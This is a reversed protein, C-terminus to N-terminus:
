IQKNSSYASALPTTNVKPAQHQRNDSNIRTSSNQFQGVIVASLTRKTNDSIHKDNDNTHSSTQVSSSSGAPVSHINGASVSSKLANRNNITSSNGFQFYKPDIREHEKDKIRPEITMPDDGDNNVLSKYGNQSTSMTSHRYITSNTANNNNNNNCVNSSVPIQAANMQIYGNGNSSITGYPTTHRIHSQGGGNNTNTLFTTPRFHNTTTAVSSDLTSSTNIRSPQINQETIQKNLYTLLLENKKLLDKAETLQENLKLNTESGKTVKSNSENLEKQLNAIEREKEQLLREQKTAIQDKTKMKDKCKILETQCTQLDNKCKELENRYKVIIENGKLLDQKLEKIKELKSQATEEHKKKSEQEVSIRDQTQQLLDQKNKLDQEVLAIKTRLHNVTKEYQHVENDLTTNTKRYRALEDKTNQYEENTTKLKSSLENITIENRYKLSTLD